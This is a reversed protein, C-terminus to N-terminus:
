LYEGEGFDVLEYSDYYQMFRNGKFYTRYNYTKVNQLRWRSYRAVAGDGVFHTNIVWVAPLDVTVKRGKRYITTPIRREDTMKKCHIVHYALDRVAIDIRELEQSICVFDFRENEGTVKRIQAVWQAMLINRKTMSSRSHMIQHLEDIFVDFGSYKKILGRWHDWNVAVPRMEGKKNEEHRIVDQIKLREVKEKRVNFNTLCYEKSKMVMKVASLTKGSGPLGLIIRIM